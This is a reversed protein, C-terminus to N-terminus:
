WEYEAMMIYFQRKANLTLARIIDFLIATLWNWGHPVNRKTDFM